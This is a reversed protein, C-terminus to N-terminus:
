GIPLTLPPHPASAEWLIWTVQASFRPIGVDAQQAKRHSEQCHGGLKLKVGPLPALGQRMHLEKMAPECYNNPLKIGHVFEADLYNWNWGPAVSLTQRRRWYSPDEFIEFRHEYGWLLKRRQALTDWRKM